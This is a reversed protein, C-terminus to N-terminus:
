LGHTWKMFITMEAGYDITACSYQFDFTPIANENLGNVRHWVSLLSASYLVANALVAFTIRQAARDYEKEYDDASMYGGDPDEFEIRHAPDIEDNARRAARYLSRRYKWDRYCYYVAFAGIVKLTAFTVGAGTAGTYFHGGGPVALDLLLANAMSVERDRRVEFTAGPSAEKTQTRETIVRSERHDEGRMRPTSGRDPGANQGRADGAQLALACVLACWVILASKTNNSVRM